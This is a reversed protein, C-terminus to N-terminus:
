FVSEGLNDLMYINKLYLRNVKKDEVPNGQADYGAPQRVPNRMAAFQNPTFYPELDNISCEVYDGDDISIFYKNRRRCDDPIYVQLALENREGYYGIKNERGDDGFHFGTREGTHRETGLIRDAERTANTNRWPTGTYLKSYEVCKLVRVYPNGESGRGGRFKASISKSLDRIYGLRFFVPPRGPAPEPIDDIYDIILNEPIIEVPFSSIYDENLDIPEDEVEFKDVNKVRDFKSKMKPDKRLDRLFQVM